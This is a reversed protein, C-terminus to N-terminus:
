VFALETGHERVHRQDQTLTGAVLPLSITLDSRYTKPRLAPDECANSYLCAVPSAM